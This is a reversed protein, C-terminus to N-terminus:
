GGPPRVVDFHTPRSPAPSHAQDALQHELRDNPQNLDDDRDDFPDPDRDASQDLLEHMDNGLDESPHAVGDDLRDAARYAADDAPDAVEEAADEAAVAMAVADALGNAVGYRANDAAPGVDELSDELEDRAQDAVVDNLADDREEVEDLGDHRHDQGPHARQDVDEDTPQQAPCIQGLNEVASRLTPEANSRLQNWVSAAMRVPEDVHVVRVPPASDILVDLAVDEAVDAPREDRHDVLATLDRE